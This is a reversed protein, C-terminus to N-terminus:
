VELNKYIEKEILPQYEELLSNISFEIHVKETEFIIKKEDTTSIKFNKFNKTLNKLDKNILLNGTKYNESLWKLFCSGLNEFEEELINKVEKIIKEKKTNLLIDIQKKLNIEIQNVKEKKLKEIENQIELLRKKYIIKGKEEAEELKKNYFNEAKRIKEEAIEKSKRLVEEKFIDFDSELSM